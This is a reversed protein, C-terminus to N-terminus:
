SFEGCSWRKTTSKYKISPGEMISLEISERDPLSPNDWIIMLSFPFQSFRISMYKNKRYSLIQINWYKLYVVVCLHYYIFFMSSYKPNCKKKAFCLRLQTLRMIGLIIHYISISLFTEWQIKYRYIPIKMRWLECEFFHQLLLLCDFHFIKNYSNLNNWLSEQYM